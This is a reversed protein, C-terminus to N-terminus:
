LAIALLRQTCSEDVAYLQGFGGRGILRRVVFGGVAQGPKLRETESDISM